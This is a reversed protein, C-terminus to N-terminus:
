ARGLVPDCLDNSFSDLDAGLDGQDLLTLADADSGPRIGAQLAPLTLIVVLSVALM